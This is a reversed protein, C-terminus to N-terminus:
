RKGALTIPRIFQSAVFHRDADSLILWPVTTYMGTDKLIRVKGEKVLVRDLKGRVQHEGTVDTWTRLHHFPQPPEDLSIKPGTPEAFPDNKAPEEKPDPLPEASAPTADSPTASEDGAPSEAAAPKVVEGGFPDEESSNLRPGNDTGTSVREESPTGPTPAFPDSEPTSEKVPPAADAGGRPAFPDDTAAPKTEEAPKPAFPDDTAPPTTGDAPKPAFPDDPTAAPPTTPETPKPAFPDDAPPPPQETGPRETGPMPAFPDDAPAPRTTDAPPETTTPPTTTGPPQAPAGRDSPSPRAPGVAGPMPMIEPQGMPPAGTQQPQAGSPIGMAPGTIVGGPGPMIMGAHPMSPHVTACPAPPCVVPRCVAVCPRCRRIRRGFFRGAWATDIMMLGILLVAVAAGGYRKVTRVARGIRPRYGKRPPLYMAASWTPVNGNQMVRRSKNM